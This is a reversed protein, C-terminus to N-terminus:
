WKTNPGWHVTIQGYIMRPEGYIRSNFGALGYIPYGGSAYTTDTANNMILSLDIPKGFANTLDARVNLLDYSPFYDIPDAPDATLYSDQWSYSASLALTGYDDGLPISYTTNLGYKFIPSYPLQRGKVDLNDLQAGDGFVARLWSVYGSITWHRSPAVVQEVEVGAIDAHPANRVIAALQGGAITAYSVQVDRYNYKFAAFNTRGQVGQINYDKKTGIEYATIYEPAFSTYIYNGQADTLSPLNAGGSKYGRSVSGYLLWTPDFQESINVSWTPARFNGSESISCPNPVVGTAPNAACTKGDLNFIELRAYRHDWNYRAGGAIKLGQYLDALDYEAHAFVSVSSDNFAHRQIHTNADLLAQAGAPNADFFEQPPGFQTANSWTDQGPTAHEYYLGLIYKLKSSAATGQVQFEDSIQDLGDEGYDTSTNNNRIIPLITGAFDSAQNVRNFRYGAINKLTIDSTVNWTTINTINTSREEDLFRADSAFARVGLQQQTALIGDLTAQPYFSFGGAKLGAILIGGLGGAPCLKGFDIGKSAGQLCFISPKTGGLTFPVGPNGPLNGVKVQGNFEFPVSSTGNQNIMRGDVVFLNDITEIPHMDVSVRYADYNRDDLKQGTVVNTTFGDRRAVNGAIRIALKDPVVPINVMGEGERDSYNGFQGTLYGEYVNKPKQPTFLIAGGTTNRGFLIGQPGKLVDVSAMDYFVGPGATPTPVELYYAVVSSPNHVGQNIVGPTQGRLYFQSNNRTQGGITLSPVARQLDNTSAVGKRALDKSSLATVAVPVSQLRESRRRATVVVQELNNTGASQRGSTSQAWAPSTAPLCVGLLLAARLALAGHRQALVSRSANTM